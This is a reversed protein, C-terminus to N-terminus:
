AGQQGDFQLNEARKLLAIQGAHYLDHQIVGHLTSYISSMGELIPEDLRADDLRGIADYLQSHSQQLIELARLWADDGTDTVAPFNEADSLNGREGALRNAVARNWAAIHLVLEWISHRGAIPREAAARSNVNALLERLAPGHWAPGSFACKLQEQIRRAETM